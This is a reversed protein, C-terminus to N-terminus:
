KKMFRNIFPADHELQFSTEFDAAENDKLYAKVENLTQQPAEIIMRAYELAREMLGEPSTVESVLGMRLAEDAPVHRGTLCLDRALGSGIIWRLPTYLTHAGFKIEPHGFVAKTSCIRIDCINALDFGGGFSFGNVAAIIPRPFNWVDRHYGMSTKVIDEHKDEERFENLDFGASFSHGNGTIILVRCAEGAALEGLLHSIEVRMQINIANRREPRNLLLTHIGEGEDRTQITNYEM